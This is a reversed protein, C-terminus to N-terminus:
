VFGHEPLLREAGKTADHGALVEAFARESEDLLPRGHPLAALGSTGRKGEIPPNSAAARGHGAFVRASHPVSLLSCFNRIDSATPAEPMRLKWEQERNWLGPSRDTM